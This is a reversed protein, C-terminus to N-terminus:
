GAAPTQVQVNRAFRYTLFDRGDVTLVRDISRDDDVTVFVLADVYSFSQDAYEALVSGARRHRDETAVRWEFLAPNDAVLGLVALAVTADRRPSVRRDFRLKTFAEGVVDAPVVLKSHRKRTGAVESVAWAHHRDSRNVFAILLGSDALATM